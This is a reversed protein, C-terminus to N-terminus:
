IGISVWVFPRKDGCSCCREEWVKKWGGTCEAIEALHKDGAALVCDYESKAGAADQM